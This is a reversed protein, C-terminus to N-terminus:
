PRRSLDSELFGHEDYQWARETLDAYRNLVRALMRADDPDIYADAYLSCGDPHMSATNLMSLMIQTPAAQDGRVIDDDRVMAVTVQVEDTQVPWMTGASRHRAGAGGSDPECTTLECWPPHLVEATEHTTTM